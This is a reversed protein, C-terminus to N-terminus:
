KLSGHVALKDAMYNGYWEFYENSDEDPPSMHAKVHKFGVKLNKALYYLKKILELNQIPKNDLRKWDNKKWNKAWSTISNIIYMSDTYIIIENKGISQTTIITELASICALLECVQNTVKNDKTESINFSLNRIDNNGFFVGIGGKRNGQFQNNPVAGDTFIIIKNM